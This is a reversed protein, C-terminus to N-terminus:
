KRIKEEKKRMKEKKKKLFEESELLNYDGVGPTILVPSKEKLKIPIKKLENLKNPSFWPKMRQYENPSPSNRQYKIIENLFTHNEKSNIPKKDCNPSKNRIQPPKEHSNAYYKPTKYSSFAWFNKTFKPIDYMEKISLPFAKILYDTTKENIKYSNIANEM